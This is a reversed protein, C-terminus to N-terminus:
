PTAHRARIDSLHLAGTNTDIRASQAQLQLSAGPAGNEPSAQTGRAPSALSHLRLPASLHLFDDDQHWSATAASLHIPNNGSNRAQVEGRLQLQSGDAALFGQAAQLQWANQPRLIALRPARLELQRDERSLLAASSLHYRPAGEDGLQVLTIGHAQATAPAAVNTRPAAAEQRLALLALGVAASVFAGLLLGAAGLSLLSAPLRM